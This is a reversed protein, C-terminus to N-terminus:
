LAKLKERLDSAVRKENNTRMKGTAIPLDYESAQNVDVTLQPKVNFMGFADDWASKIIDEVERSINEKTALEEDLFEDMTAVSATAFKMTVTGTFIRVREHTAEAPKTLARTIGKQLDKAHEKTLVDTLPIFTPKGVKDAPCYTTVGVVYGEGQKRIQVGEAKDM